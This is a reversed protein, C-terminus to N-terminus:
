KEIYDKYEQYLKKSNEHGAFAKSDTPNMLGLYQYGLIKDAYPAVNEIQKKIREFLRCHFTQPIRFM